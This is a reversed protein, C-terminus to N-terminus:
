KGNKWRLSLLDSDGGLWDVNPDGFLVRNLNFENLAAGLPTTLAPTASDDVFVQATKAAHNTVVRYRHPTGSDALTFCPELSESFSIADGAQGARLYLVCSMQPTADGVWLMATARAGPALSRLTVKAEVESDLAGNWIDPMDQQYVCGRKALRWGGGEIDQVSGETLWVPREGEPQYFWTYDMARFVFGGRGYYTLLVQSKVPTISTYCFAAGSGYDLYRINEWTEGDDKSIATNLPNRASKNNNWVLLLDGTQPLRAISAPSNPSVIGPVPVPKSWTAGRDTSYAKGIFGLDTRILMMVRGDKLEVVAPEDAGYKNEPAIARVDVDTSKQWTKGDDDSYIAFSLIVTGRVWGDYAALLLRGSKLQILRNNNIGTYGTYPPPIKYQVRDTWTKGEDLSRRFCISCDETSNKVCYSMLIGGSQLRVFGVEFTTVKGENPVLLRDEGWTQGDDHSTKSWIEAPGFDDGNSTWRGYGLLLDGNKLVIIDGEGNRPHEKTNAVLPTVKPQAALQVTMGLVGLFFIGVSRLGCGAVAGVHGQIRTGCVGMKM